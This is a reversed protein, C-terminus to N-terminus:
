EKTSRKRAKNAPVEAMKDEAPEVAKTEEPEPETAEAQKVLGYREAEALPVQQGPIAYLWRGDPDGEPVVRGDATLVLRETVEYMEMDAGKPPRIIELAM